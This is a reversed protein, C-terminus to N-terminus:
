WCLFFRRYGIVLAPQLHYYIRQRNNHQRFRDPDPSSCQFVSPDQRNAEAITSKTRLTAHACNPESLTIRRSTGDNPTSSKAYKAASRGLQKKWRPQACGSSFRRMPCLQKKSMSSRHIGIPISNYIALTKRKKCCPLLSTAPITYDILFGRSPIGLRPQRIDM